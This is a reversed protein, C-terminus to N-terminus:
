CGLELYIVEQCGNNHFETRRNLVVATLNEAARVVISDGVAPIEEDDPLNTTRIVGGSKAVLVLIKEM